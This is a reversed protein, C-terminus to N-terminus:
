IEEREILNQQIKHILSTTTYGEVFNIVQVHGGNKKVDEGGAIEDLTYDGGKVLVDPKIRSIIREPTHESFSVVWDVCRLSSLMLMREDISHLPRNRGKLARVSADDNVAVILKDGLARAESLYTLHGSHIMDFCGNTMVVREGALKAQQVLECLDEETVVRNISNNDPYLENITVSATGFKGIVVGAAQNALTLAETLTRKTALCCALVAVVTDGAGTIDCVEKAKAPLNVVESDKAILIMGLPGRTIVLATLELENCLTRAKSILVTEDHCCGVVAEFEALNPTLITAGRYIQFNKSKPDVIVAVGRQNAQTIFWQVNHLTGKAYDSLVVLDVDDLAELFKDELASVNSTKVTNEFDLRLLQQSQSVVRLKTITQLGPTQILHSVIKEHELCQLLHVAAEDDGVIGLLTVCCGLSAINLAVNGAGGARFEQTEIKVVPVPAEPSIKLTSGSWYRDLMVDGVVLVRATSFDPICSTM